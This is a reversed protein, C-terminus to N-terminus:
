DISPRPVYGLRDSLQRDVWEIEGEICERVSDRLWQADPADLSAVLKERHFELAAISMDALRSRNLERIIPLTSLAIFPALTWHQCDSM